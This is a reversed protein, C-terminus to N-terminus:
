RGAVSLQPLIAVYLGMARRSLTPTLAFVMKILQHLWEYLRNIGTQFRENEAVELFYM